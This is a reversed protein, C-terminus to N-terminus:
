TTSEQRTQPVAARSIILPLASCLYLLLALLSLSKIGGVICLNELMGGFAVGLVNASLLIVPNTAPRLLISFVMGSFFVPLCCIIASIVALVYPHLTSSAPVRAFYDLLLSLFLGAYCPAVRSLSLRDVLWNACFALTLFILIVVSSVIWTAGFLLSLQTISKTQMLMFGLGLFLMPLVEPSFRDLSLGKRYIMLPVLAAGALVFFYIIVALKSYELYLFPWDDTATRTDWYEGPEPWFRFGAALLADKPLAQLGPGFLFFCSFNPAVMALPKQGYAEGIVKYLRRTIPSKNDSAFSIAVIGHDTLHALASQISEKTYVFNDSRLFSSLRLTGGPDLYAFDILDYKQKSYRLFTRADEVYVKVRKDTYPRDPHKLLGCSAIFPDREVADVQQAGHLLACQVDNGSGSGLVLVKSPALAGVYPVELESRYLRAWEPNDRYAVPIAQLNAVPDIHLGWHYMEGNSFLNYNQNGPWQQRAIPTFQIKGYPSWITDKYVILATVVLAASLPLVYKKGTLLWALVAALALWAAPPLWLMSFLGFTAVGAISGLLNIGYSKLPPMSEFEQGLRMGLSVFTITLNTVLFGIVALSVVIGAASKMTFTRLQLETAFILLLLTSVVAVVLVSEAPRPRKYAALGISTGIFATTLTLNPFIRMIPVAVGLWRICMVEAFLLLLSVIFLPSAQSNMLFDRLRWLRNM